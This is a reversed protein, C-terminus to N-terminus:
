LFNGAPSPLQRLSVGHHAAGPLPRAPIRDRAPPPPLHVSEGPQRSCLCIRELLVAAGADLGPRARRRGTTLAIKLLEGAGYTAVLIAGVFFGGHLNTWLITAVPLIALYPIPGLRTKGARVNELAGYFLVLFFMTFLHPRALWHISSAAAAIMTVMVATIANSKRRVLRFLLAFTLCIIMMAFFVVTRLGGHSYLTAFLIDTLWEWAYWLSNPKSFSFIDHLPVQHNALIWEGTRIHWGTDCDSLLTKIGEMKGFLFVIPMIFAVDTLSPLLKVAFQPRGADM